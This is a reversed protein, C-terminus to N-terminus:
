QKENINCKKWEMEMKKNLKWKLLRRTVANKMM